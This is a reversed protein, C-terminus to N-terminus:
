IEMTLISTYNILEPNILEILYMVSLLVILVLILTFGLPAGFRISVAIGFVFACILLILMIIAILEILLM